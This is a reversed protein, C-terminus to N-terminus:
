SGVRTARDVPGGIISSRSLVASGHGKLLRLEREVEPIILPAPLECRQDVFLRREMIILQELARDAANQRRDSPGDKQSACDTHRQRTGFPGVPGLCSWAHAECQGRVRAAM